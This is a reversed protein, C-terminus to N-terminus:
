FKRSDTFAIFEGKAKKIALNWYGAGKNTKNIILQIRNDNTSSVIYEHVVDTSKDDLCDDVKLNDNGM